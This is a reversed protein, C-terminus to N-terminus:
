APNVTEFIPHARIAMNRVPLLCPASEHRRFSADAERRLGPPRQIPNTQEFAAILLGHAGIEFVQSSNLPKSTVSAPALRPQLPSPRPHARGRGAARM